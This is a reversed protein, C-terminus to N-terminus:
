SPNLDRIPDFLMRGSKNPQAAEADKVTGSFNDRPGHATRAMSPYTESEGPNLNRANLPKGEGTERVETQSIPATPPRSAEGERISSHLTNAPLGTACTLLHCRKRNSGNEGLGSNRKHFMTGALQLHYVRWRALENTQSFTGWGLGKQKCLQYLLSYAEDKEQESIQGWGRDVPLRM